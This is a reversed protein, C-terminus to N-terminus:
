SSIIQDQLDLFAIHSWHVFIRAFSFKDSLLADSARSSNMFLVVGDEYTADFLTIEEGALYEDGLRFRALSLAFAANEGPSDGPSDRPIHRPIETLM